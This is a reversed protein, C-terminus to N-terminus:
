VERTERDDATVNVATEKPTSPSGAPDPDGDTEADQDQEADAPEAPAPAPDKLTDDGDVALANGGAFIVRGRATLGVPFEMEDAM